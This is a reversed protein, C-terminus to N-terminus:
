NNNSEFRQGMPGNKNFTINSPKIIPIRAASTKMSGGGLNPRKSRPPNNGAWSPQYMSESDEQQSIKISNQQKTPMSDIGLRFDHQLGVLDDNMQKQNREDNKKGFNPKLSSVGSKINGTGSINNTNSSKIMSDFFDNNSRQIDM